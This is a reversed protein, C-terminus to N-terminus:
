SADIAARVEAHLAQMRRLDTETLLGLRRALRGSYGLEALAATAADIARRARPTAPPQSSAIKMAITIAASRMAQALVADNQFFKWTLRYVLQALEDARQSVLDHSSVQRASVAVPSGGPM